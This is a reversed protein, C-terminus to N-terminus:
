AVQLYLFDLCLRPIVFIKRPYYNLWAVSVLDSNFSPSFGFIQHNGLNDGSWMVVAAYVTQQKSNVTMPVGNELAELDCLLPSLMADFGYKKVDSSYCYVVPFINM